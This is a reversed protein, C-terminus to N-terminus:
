ASPPLVSRAAGSGYQKELRRLEAWMETKDAMGHNDAAALQEIVAEDECIRSQKSPNKKAAPKRM